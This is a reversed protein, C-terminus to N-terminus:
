SQFRSYVEPHSASFLWALATPSEATKHCRSCLKGQLLLNHADQHPLAPWGPPPPPTKEAIISCRGLSTLGLLRVKMSTNLSVRSM